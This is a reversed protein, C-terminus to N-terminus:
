KAEQFWPDIQQRSIVNSWLIQITVPEALDYWPTSDSNIRVAEVEYPVRDSASPVKDTKKTGRFAKIDFTLTQPGSSFMRNDVITIASKLTVIEKPM